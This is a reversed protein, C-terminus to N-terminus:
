SGNKNRRKADFLNWTLFGLALAELVMLIVSPILMINDRM